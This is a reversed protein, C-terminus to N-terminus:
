LFPHALFSASHFFLHAGFYEPLFAMSVAYFILTVIESVVM